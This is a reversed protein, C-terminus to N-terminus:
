EEIKVGESTWSINWSGGGGVLITLVPALIDKSLLLNPIPVAIHRFRPKISYRAFASGPEPLWPRLHPMRCYGLPLLM